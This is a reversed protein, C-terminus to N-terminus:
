AADGALQRAFPVGGSVVPLGADLLAARGVNTIPEPNTVQHSARKATTV